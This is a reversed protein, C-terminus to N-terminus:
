ESECQVTISRGDVTMKSNVMERVEARYIADTDDCYLDVYKAVKTAVTDIGPKLYACGTGLTLVLATFFLILHRTM